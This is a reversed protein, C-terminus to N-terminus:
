LIRGGRKAPGCAAAVAPDTPNAIQESKSLLGADLCRCIGLGIPGLCMRSARMGTRREAQAKDVATVSAGEGTGVFRHCWSKCQASAGALRTANGQLMGLHALVAPNDPPVACNRERRVRSAAPRAELLPGARNLWGETTDKPTAASPFALVFPTLYLRM